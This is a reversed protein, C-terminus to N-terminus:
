QKEIWIPSSWAREYPCNNTLTTAKEWVKMRYYAYDNTLHDTYDLHVIQTWAANTSDLICNSNRFLQIRAIDNTPTEGDARIHLNVEGCGGTMLSKSHFITNGMGALVNGMKATFEIRIKGGSTGYCHKLKFANWIAERSRNTVLVAALGGTYPGLREAVNNTTEEVGGPNGFHTDTSGIIGLKLGPNHGLILWRDLVRNIASNTVFANVPEECGPMESSGHRSYIEVLPAIDARAYDNDWDTSMDIGPNDIDSGKAPHHPISIFYGNSNTSELYNWLQTPNIYVDQGYGRLPLHDFDYLLICKHGTGNPHPPSTKTYEFGPFVIIDTHNSQFARQQAMTDDWEQQTYRGPNTIEAHDTIAVFDLLNTCSLLANSPSVTCGERDFADYSNSTHSHLDGWCAFYNTFLASRGNTDCGYGTTPIAARDIIKLRYFQENAGSGAGNTCSTRETNATVIGTQLDEQWSGSLNSASEIRYRKGPVSAWQCMMADASLPSIGAFWFVSTPNTPQTGTCFIEADDNLGDGDSDPLASNSGYEAEEYDYVGDSDADTKTEIRIDDLFWGSFGNFFGDRTDFRFRLRVSANTYARLDLTRMTWGGSTGWTNSALEIWTEGSNTSLWVQCDDKGSETDFKENFVLIAPVSGLAVSSTTSLACDLANTGNSYSGSEGAGCWWAHSPSAFDRSTIHWFLTTSSGLATVTWDNSGAEVHNTYLTDASAIRVLISLLVGAASTAACRRRSSPILKRIKLFLNM